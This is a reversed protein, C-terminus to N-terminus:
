KAEMKAQEYNDAEELLYLKGIAQEVKKSLEPFEMVFNVTLNDDEEEGNEAHISWSRWKKMQIAKGM